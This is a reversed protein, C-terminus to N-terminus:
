KNVTNGSIGMAKAIHRQSEGAFFRGRIEDYNQM